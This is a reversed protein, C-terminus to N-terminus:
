RVVTMDDYRDSLIGHEKLTQLSQEATMSERKIPIRLVKKM